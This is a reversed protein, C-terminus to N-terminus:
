EGAVFAKASKIDNVNFLKISPAIRKTLGALVRGPGVEIATTVGYEVANLISERWRVKSVIQNILLEKFDATEKQATFNAILPYQPNNFKVNELAIKLKDAAGQMKSSHFPGSVNLLVAKMAGAAEAADAVIQLGAKSGSVVVQIGSNDNAVEMFEDSHIDNILAEVKDYNLGIIALMGYGGPACEKMANGRVWLLKATDALSIVNAACLATYEGLSHGAVFGDVKMGLYELVKLYAMSVTMLAVQANETSTLQEDTGNFILDSMKMSLADDVELFVNKADNCFDFADKGMGIKQSGQGPFMFLNM